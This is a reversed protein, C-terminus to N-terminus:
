STCSVSGSAVLSQTDLEPSLFTTASSPSPDLPDPSERPRRPPALRTSPPQGGRAVPLHPLLFPPLLAPLRPKFAMSTWSVVAFPGRALSLFQARRSPRGALSAKITGRSAAARWPRPSPLRLPPPRRRALRSPSRHSPQAITTTAVVPAAATTPEGMELQTPLRPHWRPPRRRSLAVPTPM